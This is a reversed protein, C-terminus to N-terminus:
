AAPNRAALEGRQERLDRYLLVVVAITAMTLITFFAVILPWLPWFRIMSAWERLEATAFVIWIAVAVIVVLLVVAYLGLLTGVRMSALDIGRRLATLVRTDEIVLVPIAFSLFAFVLVGPLYLFAGGISCMIGICLSLGTLRLFVQGIRSVVSRFDVEEWQLDAWIVVTAGATAFGNPFSICALYALIVGLKAPVGMSQWLTVPDWQRSPDRHADVVLRAILFCVAM